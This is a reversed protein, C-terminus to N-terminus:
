PVKSGEKKSIYIELVHSSLILFTKIYILQLAQSTGNGAIQSANKTFFDEPAIRWGITDNRKSLTLITGKPPIAGM